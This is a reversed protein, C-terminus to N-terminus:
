RRWEGFWREVVATNNVNCWGITPDTSDAWAIRTNNVLTALASAVADRQSSANQADQTSHIESNAIMQELQLIVQQQAAPSASNQVQVIMQDIRSLAQQAVTVEVATTSALTRLEADIIAQSFQTSTAIVLTPNGNAAAHTRVAPVILEWCQNEIGRLQNVAGIVATAIGQKAAFYAAETSRAGALVALAASVAGSRVMAQTQSVMRDLYAPQGSSPSMLGAIGSSSGILRTTLGAFLNSVIQDIENANELQRFGSGTSQSISDAILFGPTVINAQLPNPNGDFVSYVGRNWDWVQRINQEDEALDEAVERALNGSAGIINGDPRAQAFWQQYTL